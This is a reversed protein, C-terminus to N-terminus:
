SIKPLVFPARYERGLLENAAPDDAITESAADFQLRHGTRFAINGLHCLRTSSHGIAIDANPAAGSKICDLFNRVHAAECESAKEGALKEGSASETKAEAAAGDTPPEVTWGGDDFILNGAEGYFVAGWPRGYLGSKSYMRHEWTVCTGGFDFMAIQTDPTQRDDQNAYTGGGSTVSQPADVDLIARVVDLAHIGNNGLEGTGYDWFWHWNYHFRNPNFPRNPAPGLWLDYNVGSPTPADALKGIGQRGGTIWARAFAIKGLKGDRVYKAASALWTASRRQTGVQVVRQHKRAAEVMRRGEILNHSVPKEVYVHKGAQCAWVTALAHWHDPAAIVLADLTRDELLRRVDAEYRPPKTQRENLRKLAPAVTSEDPDCVAVLEVDACESFRAVHDRGRNRLGMVAVRLKESPSDAAAAWNRASLSAATAVFTAASTALFARRNSPPSILPPM